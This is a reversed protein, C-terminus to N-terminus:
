EECDCGAAIAAQAADAWDSQADALAAEAADLLEEAINKLEVADQLARYAQREALRAARLNDLAAQCAEPTTYNDICASQVDAEADTVAYEAALHDAWANAHQECEYAYEAEADELVAEAWEVDAVASALANCISDCDPVPTQGQELLLLSPSAAGAVCTAAPTEDTAAASLCESSAPASCVATAALLGLLAITPTHM